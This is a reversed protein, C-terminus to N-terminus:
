SSLFMADAFTIMRAGLSGAKTAMSICRRAQHIRVGLEDRALRPEGIGDPELRVALAHGVGHLAELAGQRGPGAAAAAGGEELPRAQALGKLLEGPGVLHLVLGALGDEVQRRQRHRLLGDELGLLEIDVADGVGLVLACGLVGITTVL